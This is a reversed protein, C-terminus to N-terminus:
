KIHRPLDRMGHIVREIRVWNGQTRFLIRYRGVRANRIGRPLDEAFRFLLPNREIAEFELWIRDVFAEAAAPNDRAIYDGIEEIDSYARLSVELLM